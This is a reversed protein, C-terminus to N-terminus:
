RLKSRGEDAGPVLADVMHEKYSSWEKTPAYYMVGMWFDARESERRQIRLNLPEFVGLDEGSRWAQAHILL